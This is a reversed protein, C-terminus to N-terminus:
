QREDWSNYRLRRSLPGSVLELFANALKHSDQLRLAGAAWRLGGEAHLPFTAWAAGFEFPSAERVKM